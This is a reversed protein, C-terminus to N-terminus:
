ERISKMWQYWEILGQLKMVGVTKKKNETIYTVGKSALVSRSNEDNDSGNLSRNMGVQESDSVITKLLTVSEM